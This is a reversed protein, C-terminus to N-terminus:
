QPNGESQEQDHDQAQQGRLRQRPDLSAHVVKSSRPVPAAAQHSSDLLKDINRDVVEGQSTADTRLRTNTAYERTQPALRESTENEDEETATILLDFASDLGSWDDHSNDSLRIANKWESGTGGSSTRCENESNDRPSEFGSADSSSSSSSSASEAYKSEKSGSDSKGTPGSKINLRQFRALMSGGSDYSEAYDMVDNTEWESSQSVFGENESPFKITDLSSRLLAEADFPMKSENGRSKKYVRKTDKDEVEVFPQKSEREKRPRMDIEGDVRDSDDRLFSAGLQADKKKEEFVARGRKM